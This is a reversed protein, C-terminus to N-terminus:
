AITRGIIFELAVREGDQASVGWFYPSDYSSMFREFVKVANKLCHSTIFGDDAVVCIKRYNETDIKVVDYTDFISVATNIEEYVKNRVVVQTRESKITKM